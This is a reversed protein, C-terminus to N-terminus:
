KRGSGGCWFCAAAGTQGCNTCIRPVWWGIGPMAYPNQIFVHGWGWGHCVPCMVAGYGKCNGCVGGGGAAAFAGVGVAGGGVLGAMWNFNHQVVPSQVAKGAVKQIGCATTKKFLCQGVKIAAQSAQGYCPRCEIATLMALVAALSMMMRKM